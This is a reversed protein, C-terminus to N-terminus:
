TSQDTGASTFTAFSTLAVAHPGGLPRATLRMARHGPPGPPACADVREPLARQIVDPLGIPMRDAYLTDAYLESGAAHGRVDRAACARRTLYGNQLGVTFTRASPHTSAGFTPKAQVDAPRKAAAGSKWSLPGSPRSTPM